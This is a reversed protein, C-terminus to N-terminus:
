ANSEKKGLLAARLEKNGQSKPYNTVKPPPDAFINLLFMLVVLLYQFIYLLCTSVSEGSDDYEADKFETSFQALGAMSLILWFLFLVASSQLGRQMDWILLVLTLLFTASTVAPTWLDVPYVKEGAMSLTLSWVFSTVSLTILVLNFCLDRKKKNQINREIISCLEELAIQDKRKEKRNFYELEEKGEGQGSERPEAETSMKLGRSARMLKTSAPFGVFRDSNDEVSGFPLTESFRQFNRCARTVTVCSVFALYPSHLPASAESFEMMELNLLRKCLRSQVQVLQRYSPFGDLGTEALSTSFPIQGLAFLGISFICFSVPLAWMCNDIELHAVLLNLVNLIVLNSPFKAPLKTTNTFGWPVDRCKSRFIVFLELPTLLWLLLCPGWVLATKEFCLPLRPNDTDWSITSDYM